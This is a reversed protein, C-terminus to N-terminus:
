EGVFYQFCDKNWRQFALIILAADSLQDADVSDIGLQTMIESRNDIRGDLVITFPLGDVCLPQREGVEEPTTWFHWHGMTVAGLSLVDSGDPGRHSLRGMANSFVGGGGPTNSREYVVMFASM